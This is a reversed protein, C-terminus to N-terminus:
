LPRARGGRCSGARRERTRGGVRAHCALPLECGGGVATGHLAVVIPKPSAEIQAILEPLTPSEGAVGTDFERIDVSASFMRGACHIVFAELEPDDLGAALADRLGTCLPLSLANVPPKDLTIVGVAGRRDFCVPESM